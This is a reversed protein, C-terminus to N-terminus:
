TLTDFAGKMFAGVKKMVSNESLYELGKLTIRPCILQMRSSGMELAKIEKLGEMYGSDLLMKLLADRRERTIGLSEPSLLENDFNEYDLSKELIKLIRYIIKFNDM